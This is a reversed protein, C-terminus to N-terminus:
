TGCGYLVVPLILTIYIKIKMNKSLFCSSLRHRVLHCCDNGSKLRSKMKEQISNQYTLTIELCKYEEVRKFSINDTKRNHSRGANQHGSMTM